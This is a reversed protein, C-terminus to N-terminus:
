LGAVLAAVELACGYGITIGSGGHGYNHVVPIGPLVATDLELRVEGRGPRLGVLTELVESEALAPALDRCRRLISRTLDPDPATDWEGPELSGGLVCDAARPHVYARGLPHAEDRISVSLGPNTVRVIQGRIPYVDPDGALEAARLGACNVVVDPSLGALDDLRHVTRLVRRAGAADVQASLFPLYTPMEVLPVAFRFGFRYGPPLEGPAAARFSRVSRSWAPIAPEDRHLAMSECMRVGPAGAAALAALHEFTTDSWAGVRDAPGAATPFWVAAALFSTTATIPAASVVTVEHRDRLLEAATSLGSIGSGLVVIRM